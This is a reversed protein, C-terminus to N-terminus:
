KGSCNSRCTYTADQSKVPFAIAYEAFNFHRKLQRFGSLLKKRLSQNFLDMGNSSIQRWVFKRAILNILIHLIKILVAM